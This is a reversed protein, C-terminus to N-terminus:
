FYLRMISILGVVALGILLAIGSAMVLLEATSFSEIIMMQNRAADSSDGRGSRSRRSHSQSSSGKRSGSWRRGVGGSDGAVSMVGAALLAAGAAEALMPLLVAVLTLGGVVFILGILAVTGFSAIPLVPGIKQLQRMFHMGVVSVVTVALLLFVVLTLGPRGGSETLTLLALSLYGALAYAANEAHHKFRRSHGIRWAAFLTAGVMAVPPIFRYHQPRDTLKVLDVTNPSFVGVVEVPAVKVYHASLYFWSVVWWREADVTLVHEPLLYFMAAWGLLYAGVGAGVGYVLQQDRLKM